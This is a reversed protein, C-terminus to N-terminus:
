ANFRQFVTTPEVKGEYLAKGIIEECIGLNELKELDEESSIGGSAILCLGREKGDNNISSLKQFDPGELTGDSQVSTLLFTTFGFGAFRVLAESVQEEVGAKWGDIRVRGTTDYDLALVVRQAGFEALLALASNLDRYALSSVVVRNAGQSFASSAVEGSRIGGAIQIKLDTGKFEALIDRIITRNRERDNHLAGNLDVLHVLRAGCEHFNRATEQPSDSYWKATSEEGQRVRVVKGDLIDIAPIALTDLWSM